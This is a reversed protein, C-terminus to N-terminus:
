YTWYALGMFWDWPDTMPKRFSINFIALLNYLKSKTINKTNANKIYFTHKQEEEKEEGIVPLHLFSLHKARKPSAQPQNCM